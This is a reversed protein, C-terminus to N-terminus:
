QILLLFTNWFAVETLGRESATPFGVGTTMEFFKSSKM